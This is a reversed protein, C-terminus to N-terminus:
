QFLEDRAFAFVHRMLNDWAAQPYRWAALEDCWAASFNPGRLREPEDASFCHATAGNPWTLKRKSPEFVPRHWGTSLQLVGSIGEIQTDRYDSATASVIAIRAGPSAAQEIVWNAGSWTKGSGRSGLQLWISWDGDPPLQSARAQARWDQELAESLRQALSRLSM